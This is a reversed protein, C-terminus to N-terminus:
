RIDQFANWKLILVFSESRTGPAWNDAQQVGPFFEEGQYFAPLAGSYSAQVWRRERYLNYFSWKKRDKSHGCKVRMCM